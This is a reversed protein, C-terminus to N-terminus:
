QPPQTGTGAGTSSGSGSPYSSGSPSAGMNGSSGKSKGGCSDSIMDVSAVNFIKESGAEKGSGSTSSAGSMGGAEYTGKVSVEHGVHASVDQGALNVTKGKKTELVYQGGQSQVCGKLKKEGKDKDAKQSPNANQDTQGMGNGTDPQTTGPQQMTGPRGPSSQTGQGGSPTMQAVAVAMCLAFAVFLSLTIKRM